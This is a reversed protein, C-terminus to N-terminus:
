PERGTVAVSKGSLEIDGLAQLAEATAASVDVVCDDPFEQKMAVMQPLIITKASEPLIPM